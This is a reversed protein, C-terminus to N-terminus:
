CSYTSWCTAPVNEDFDYFRLDAFTLLRYVCVFSLTLSWRLSRRVSPCLCASGWRVLLTWRSRRRWATDVDSRSTSRTLFLRVSSSVSASFLLRHMKFHSVQHCYNKTIKRIILQSLNRTNIPQDRIKIGGRLNRHTLSYLKVGWEVCHLDNRLRILNRHLMVTRESIPHVGTVSVVSLSVFSCVSPRVFLSTETQRDTQTKSPTQCM